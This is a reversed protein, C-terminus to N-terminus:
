VSKNHKPLKKVMNTKNNVFTKVQHINLLIRVAAAMKNETFPVLFYNKKNEKKGLLYPHM